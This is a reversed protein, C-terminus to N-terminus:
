MDVSIDDIEFNLEEQVDDIQHDTFVGDLESIALLEDWNLKEALATRRLHPMAASIMKRNDLSLRGILKLLAIIFAATDPAPSLTTVSLFCVGDNSKGIDWDAVSECQMNAWFNLCGIQLLGAQISSCLLPPPILIEPELNSLHFLVNFILLRIGKKGAEFYLM